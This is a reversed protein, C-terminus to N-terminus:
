HLYKFRVQLVYKQKIQKTDYVIFENYLLSTQAVGSPQGVGMPVKLAADTPLPPFQEGGDDPEPSKPSPTPTGGRM